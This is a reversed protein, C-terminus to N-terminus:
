YQGCCSFSGIELSTTVLLIVSTNHRVQHYSCKDPDSGALVALAECLEEDMSGTDEQGKNVDMNRVSCM